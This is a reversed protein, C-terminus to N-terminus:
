EVQMRCQIKQSTLYQKIESITTPTIAKNVGGEKIFDIVGEQYDQHDTFATKFGYHLISSISVAHAGAMKIVDTIGQPSDAGGCAVVPITVAETVKKTLELDYGHGTGEHDVSMLLIEGAGKAQAEKAWAVVEKGTYERGNDTFALYSGDPQRIAEVNVSITSSGYANAADSIFQPNNIAATNIAVKDAGLRLIRKIDDMTRIGGGVTIPIFVDKVTEAIINDLSNRNYLSAVVDVYILEDAGAEYYYKSFERPKGLVRLGELHIGKVLNPGKIDLRPIIRVAQSM